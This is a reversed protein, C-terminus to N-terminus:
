FGGHSIIYDNHYIDRVRYSPETIIKGLTLGELDWYPIRILPINHLICYKNKRRDWERQKKFGFINKHFHKTFKYHQIGDVELLFLIKNNKYVAFDFRLPVQKKGVLDTFSIERKFAIGNKNFIDILKQEGKSTKISM